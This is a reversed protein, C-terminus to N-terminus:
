ANKINTESPTDINCFLDYLLDVIKSTEDSSLSYYISQSQRRTTVLGESRMRALHQSLPSQQLDLIEALEGVSKEGNKLECLILLRDKHSLTKLLNSANIVGSQLEQRTREIEANM